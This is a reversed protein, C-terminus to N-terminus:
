LRYRITHQDKVHFNLALVMGTIILLICSVASVGFVALPGLFPKKVYKFVGELISRYVQPPHTIVIMSNILVGYIIFWEVLM